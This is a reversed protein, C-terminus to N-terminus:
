AMLSPSAFVVAVFSICAAIIALFSMSPHLVWMWLAMSAASFYILAPFAKPNTAPARNTSM